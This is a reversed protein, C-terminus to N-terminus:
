RPALDRLAAPVRPQWVDAPENVHSDADVIRYDM